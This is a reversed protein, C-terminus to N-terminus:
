PTYTFRIAVIGSGGAGGPSPYNGGGGGGGGTNVTGAGGNTGGGGPTATGFVYGGSPNKYTGGGGGAFTGAWTPSGSGGDQNPAAAGAGGGGGIVAGLGFGPTPSSFDRGPYGQGPTGPGASASALNNYYSAGGGSGGGRVPAGNGNAGAGNGGGSSTIGAFSSPGGSTAAPGGGTGGGGVTVTYPTGGTVAITSTLLGGAGGGGGASDPGGGGGGGAVIVYEVTGPQNFTIDGSAPFTYRRYGGSDLLTGGTVSTTNFPPLRTIVVSSSTIKTPGGPTESIVLQFTRDQGSGISGINANFNLTSFNNAPVIFYGVNATTFATGNANGTMSYYLNASAANRTTLNFRIPLLGSSGQLTVNSQTLTTYSYQKSTDLIEVNSAVFVINGTPSNTRLQVRFNEGTEDMLSLDTNAQLAFTGSNSVISFSGTNAVFDSSSVNALVPFVSYYLTAGNQVNATVVTFSVLNGEAVTATNATLSVFNTRDKITIVPSTALVTGQASGRRLKVVFTRDGELAFAASSLNITVNGALVLASGSLSNSSFNSAFIPM